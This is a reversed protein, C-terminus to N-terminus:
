QTVTGSVIFNSTNNGTNSIGLAGGNIVNIWNWGQGTLFTTSCLPDILYCSLYSKLHYKSGSKSKNLIMGVATYQIANAIAHGNGFSIVNNYRPIYSISLPLLYTINDIKATEITITRTDSSQSIYQGKNGFTGSSYAVNGYILKDVTLLTGGFTIGLNASTEGEDHSWQASLKNIRDDSITVYNSSNLANELDSGSGLNPKCNIGWSEGNHNFAIFNPKDGNIDCLFGIQPYTVTQIISEFNSANPNGIFFSFNHGDYVNSENLLVNNKSYISPCQAMINALQGSSEKGNKIANIIQGACDYISTLGNFVYFYGPVVKNTGMSSEYTNYVPLSPLSGNPGGNYLIQKAPIIQSYIQTDNINIPQGNFFLSNSITHTLNDYYEHYRTDLPDSIIHKISNVLLANSRALYVNLLNRQTIYYNAQNQSESVQPNYLFYTSNITAKNIPPLQYTNQLTIQDISEINAINNIGFSYNIYNIYFEMQYASQLVLGAQYAYYVIYNNISDFVNVANQYKATNASSSIPSVIAASALGDLNDLLQYFITGPILNNPNYTDTQNYPHVDKFCWISGPNGCYNNSLISGSINSIDPAFNVQVGFNLNFRSVLEQMSTLSATIQLLTQQSNSENIKYGLYQFTNLFRAPYSNGGSEVYLSYIGNFQNYTNSTTAQQQDNVYNYFVNEAAFFQQQLQNVQSQLQAVDYFLTAFANHIQEHVPSFFSMFAATLGLAAGFPGLLASSFNKGIGAFSFRQGLAIGAIANGTLGLSFAADSYEQVNISETVLSKNQKGEALIQYPIGSISISEVQQSQASDVSGTNNCASLLFGVSIIIIKSKM